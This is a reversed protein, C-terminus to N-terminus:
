KKLLAVVSDLEKSLSPTDALYSKLGEILYNPVPENKSVKSQIDKLMDLADKKTVFNEQEVKVVFDKVALVKESDIAPPPAPKNTMSETKTQICTNYLDIIRELDRKSLDGKDLKGSVDACDSLYKSLMKKFGLNPVEMGSGDIKVLYQGDWSNQQSPRFAFLSLYGSKILKMFRYSNDYKVTKYMTGSQFIIKVQLATFNSKKGNAIIQVRDILDYSMLKIEGVLTDGKVNIAYDKQAITALPVAMLIIILVTKFNM